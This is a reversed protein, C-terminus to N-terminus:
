TAPELALAAARARQRRRLRAALADGAVVFVVVLAQITEVLSVPLGTERQAAEAGVLMASLGIASVLVGLPNNRGVIAVIIATFGFGAATGSAVRTQVGALQVFGAVGALAGGITLLLLPLRGPRVENSTTATRNGGHARVLYGLRTSSMLWAAVPVVVLLLLVGGHVDIWGLEPLAANGVVRSQPLYSEPDKLPDRVAWTLLPEAIFVLLLTVIVINVGFRVHIWGALAGWLAGGLAGLLLGLPILVAGPVTNLYGIAAISCLAGAIMQGEAGINWVDAKFSIALGVGILTLPTARILTDRWGSREFLASSFVTRYIALPDEGAAALIVAGVALAALVSLVPTLVAWPVHRSIQAGGLDTV